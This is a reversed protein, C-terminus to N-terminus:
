SLFAPCVRSQPYSKLCGSFIEDSKQSFKKYPQITVLIVAKLLYNKKYNVSLAM